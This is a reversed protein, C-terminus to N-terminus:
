VDPVLLLRGHKFDRESLVNSLIKQVTGPEQIPRHEVWLAHFLADLVRTLRGERNEEELQAVVSVARM